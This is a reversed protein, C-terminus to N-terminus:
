RNFTLTSSHCDCAHVVSLVAHTTLATGGRRGSLMGVYSTKRCCIIGMNTAQNQCM